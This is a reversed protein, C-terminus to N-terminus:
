AGGSKLIHRIERLKDDDPLEPRRLIDLAAQLMEALHLLAANTGVTSFMSDRQEARENFSKIAALKENQSLSTAVLTNIGTNMTDLTELHKNALKELWPKVWLAVARLPKRVIYVACVAIVGPTGLLDWWEKIASPPNPIAPIDPVQALLERIAGDLFALYSM